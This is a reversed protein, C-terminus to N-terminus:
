FFMKHLWHFLCVLILYMRYACACTFAFSKVAELDHTKKFVINEWIQLQRKVSFHRIAKLGHIDTISWLVWGPWVLHFFFFDIIFMPVIWCHVYHWWNLRVRPFVSRPYRRPVNWKWPLWFMFIKIFIADLAFLIATRNM